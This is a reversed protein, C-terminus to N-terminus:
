GLLFSSGIVIGDGIFAEGSHITQHDPVWGPPEQRPQMEKAFPHLPHHDHNSHFPDPPLPIILVDCPNTSTLHCLSFKYKVTKVDFDLFIHDQLHVYCGAPEVNLNLPHSEAKRM